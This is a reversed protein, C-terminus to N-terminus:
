IYFATCAECYYPLYTNGAERSSRVRSTKDDQFPPCFNSLILLILLFMSIFRLVNVPLTFISYLPKKHIQIMIISSIKYSLIM